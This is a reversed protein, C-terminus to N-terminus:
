ASFRQLVMDPRICVPRSRIMNIITGYWLKLMPSLKRWLFQYPVTGIEFFIGYMCAGAHPNQERCRYLLVKLVVPTTVRNVLTESRSRGIRIRVDRNGSRIRIETIKKLSSSTTSMFILKKKKNKQTNDYTSYTCKCWDVYCDNLLCLQLFGPM